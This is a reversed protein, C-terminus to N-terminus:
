RCYMESANNRPVSIMAIAPTPSLSSFFSEVRNSVTTNAASPLPSDPM